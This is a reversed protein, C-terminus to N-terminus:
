CAAHWYCNEFTIKTLNFYRSNKKPIPNIAIDIFIEDDNKIEQQAPVFIGGFDLSGTNMIGLAKGWTLFFLV